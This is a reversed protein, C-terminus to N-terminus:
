RIMDCSAYAREICSNADGKAYAAKQTQKDILHGCAKNQMIGYKASFSVEVLHFVVVFNLLVAWLVWNLERNNNFHIRTLHIILWQSSSYIAPNYQM